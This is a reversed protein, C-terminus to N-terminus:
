RDDAFALLKDWEVAHKLRYKQLVRSLQETVRAIDTPKSRSYLYFEARDSIPFIMRMTGERNFGEPKRNAKLDRLNEEILVMLIEPDQPMQESEELFKLYMPRFAPVLKKWTVSRDFVIHGSRVKPSTARAILPPSM